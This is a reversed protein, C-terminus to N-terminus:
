RGRERTIQDFTKMIITALKLDMKTFGDADHTTLIVTDRNNTIKLDPHHNLRDAPEVLCQIFESAGEFDGKLTLIRSISGKHHRWQPKVHLFAKARATNVAQNDTYAHGQSAISILTLAFMFALAFVSSISFARSRM